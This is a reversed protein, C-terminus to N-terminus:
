NCQKKQVGDGGARWEIIEVQGRGSLELRGSGPLHYVSFSQGPLWTRQRNKRGPASASPASVFSTRAKKSFQLFNM